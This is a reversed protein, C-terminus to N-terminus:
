GKEKYGLDKLSMGVYEPKSEIYEFSYIISREYDKIYDIGSVDEVSLEPAGYKWGFEHPVPIPFWKLKEVPLVMDYDSPLIIQYAVNGFAVLLFYNYRFSVLDNKKYIMVKLKAFPRPGPVYTTMLFLPHPPVLQAHWHSPQNIWRLARSFARLESRGIVSLGIKVLCKYVASPVFPEIQFKMTAKKAELDIHYHGEDSRALIKPLEGSKIDFRARGDKSKYNPIKTKGKIQGATRLYRTYKDLHDELHRSFFKNCSDCESNLILQHNGLFESVAHSQDNFSVEPRSFGCFRCGHDKTDLHILSGKGLDYNVIIEYGNDYYSLRELLNM